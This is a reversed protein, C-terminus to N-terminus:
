GADERDGDDNHYKCYDTHNHDARETVLWVLCPQVHPTGDLLSDTLVAVRLRSRQESYRIDWIYQSVARDDGCGYKDSTNCGETREKGFRITWRMLADAVFYGLDHLFKSWFQCHQKAAPESQSRKEISGGFM